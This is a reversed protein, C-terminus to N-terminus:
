RSRPQREYEILTRGAEDLDGCIGTGVAAILAAGRAAEERHRGLQPTLGFEAAVSEALVANERLGNGAGALTTKGQGTVEVIQDYAERFGRAMGELVSRVFNEPTLNGPTMGVLSGTQQPNSRTGSFTPVFQLGGSGSAAAAALETMKAYPFEDSNQEFMSCGIGRLLSAVVQFSWGGPLGVNSLLNGSIPFPRLEIPARYDNGETFVAVQAGTGVNLLISEHRNAVSGLFSAQHDGIATFVPLSDPLGLERAFSAAVLGVQQDAEQVKPFLSPSLELRGISEADFQRSAVDFVGSGGANTPETVISSETLTAAFLDPLFCATGRNPLQGNESLWFMTTALFGTNLRCGTRRTSEEDLRRRAVEIWTRGEEGALSCPENGRQDQWNIFPTLPRRQSDVLVTGHQQGTVGLGALESVRGGLMETLERLCDIACRILADANWESRSAVDGSSPLRGADSSTTARAVLEGSKADIAICTTKTTGLDIGALLTMRQGQTADEDTTIAM